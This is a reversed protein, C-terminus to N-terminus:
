IKEYRDINHIINLINSNFISGLVRRKSNMMPVWVLGDCGIILYKNKRNQISKFETKLSDRLKLNFIEDRSRRYDEDSLYFLSQNAYGGPGIPMYQFIQWKTVNLENILIDAIGKLEHTNHAHAVTNVCVTQSLKQAQQIISMCQQFSLQLRFFQIVQDSIGDLPVGLSDTANLARIRKNDMNRLLALGVTDISVLIKRRVFNNIIVDIDDRLLPDGGSLTVKALNFSDVYSAIFNDLEVPTVQKSSFFNYCGPCVCPCSNSCQVILSRQNM